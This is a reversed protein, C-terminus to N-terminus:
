YTRAEIERGRKLLTLVELRLSIEHQDLKGAIDFQRGSGLRNHITFEAVEILRTSRELLSFFEGLQRYTALMNVEYPVRLVQGDQKLEDPRLSVLTIELDEMSETLFSLFPISATQATSDVLSTAFNLRLLDTVGSLNEALIQASLLKESKLEVERDLSRILEPQPRVVEWFYLGAAVLYLFMAALFIIEKRV